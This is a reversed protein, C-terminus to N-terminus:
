NIGRAPGTTTGNVPVLSTGPLISSDHADGVFEMAFGTSNARVVVVGWFSLQSLNNFRGNSEAVAPNTNSSLAKLFGSSSGSSTIFHVRSDGSFASGNPDFVNDNTTVVFIRHTEGSDVSFSTSNGSGDESLGVASMTLGIRTQATDLSPHSVGVFTYVSGDGDAQYYPSIVSRARDNSFAQANGVFAFAM